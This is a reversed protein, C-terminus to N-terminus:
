GPSKGLWRELQELVKSPLHLTLTPLNDALACLDEWNGAVRLHRQLTEDTTLTRMRMLCAFAVWCDDLLSRAAVKGERMFDDPEAVYVVGFAALRRVEDPLNLDFAARRLLPFLVPLKELFSRAHKGYALEFDHAEAGVIRILNEQLRDLSDHPM